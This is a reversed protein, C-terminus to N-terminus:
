AKEANLIACVLKTRLLHSKRRNRYPYAMIKFVKIQANINEIVIRRRSLERNYAKELESLPCNKSKKIPILSWAYYNQIGQYGSDALILVTLCVALILLSTKCLTFDHVSGLAEDVDDILRSVTNVIVQSKVTHKKKGSYWDEQDTQPRHIPHETVDVAITQIDEGDQLADKQLAGKGPLQFRGDASLVGEVWTISRFISSKSCDYDDGISEMTTYERYYKLTILLKDGVTLNPPKGGQKHLQVHATELVALMSLFVPKTTGIRRKFKEDSLQLKKELRSM